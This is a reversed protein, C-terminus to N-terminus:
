KLMLLNDSKKGVYYSIGCLAASATLALIAYLIKSGSTKSSSDSEGSTDKSKLLDDNDDDNKTKKNKLLQENKQVEKIYKEEIDKCKSELEKEKQENKKQKQLNVKETHNLSNRLKQEKKKCQAHERELSKLRSTLEQKQIEHRENIKKSLATNEREKEITNNLLINKENLDNVKERLAQFEQLQMADISQTKSIIREYHDLYEIMEKNKRGNLNFNTKDEESLNWEDMLTGIIEYNFHNPLAYSMKEVAKMLIPHMYEFSTQGQICDSLLYLTDRLSIDETTEITKEFEDDDLDVFLKKSDKELEQSEEPKASFM